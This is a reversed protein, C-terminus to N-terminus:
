EEILKELQIENQRIQKRTKRYELFDNWQSLYETKGSELDFKPMTWNELFDERKIREESSETSKKMENLELSYQVETKKWDILNSRFIQEYRDNEDRVEKKYRYHEGNREDDFESQLVETLRDVSKAFASSEVIQNIMHVITQDNRYEKQRDYDPKMRLSSEYSDLDLRREKDVNATWQKELIVIQPIVRLARLADVPGAFDVFAFDYPEDKVGLARRWRNVKGCLDLIRKIFSDPLSPAINCVFITFPTDWEM